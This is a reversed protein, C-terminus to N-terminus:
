IRLTKKNQLISIWNQEEKVYNNEQASTVHSALEIRENERSCVLCKQAV